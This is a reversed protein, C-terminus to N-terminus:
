GLLFYILRLRGFNELRGSGRGIVINGLYELRDSHWGFELVWWNELWGSHRCLKVMGSFLGAV